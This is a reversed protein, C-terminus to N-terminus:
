KYLEAVAAEVQKPTADEPLALVHSGSLTGQDSEVRTCVFWFGDAWHASEVAIKTKM